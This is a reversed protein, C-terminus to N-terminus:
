PLAFQSRFTSNLRTVGLEAHHIFLARGDKSFDIAICAGVSLPYEGVLRVADDVVQERTSWLRVVADTGITALTPLTPHFTVDECQNAHALQSWLLQGTAVEWMALRRDSSVSALHKGNPSFRLDQISDTHLRLTQLLEGAEVSRIVVSNNRVYALRDGSPSFRMANALNSDVSWQPKASGLRYLSVHHRQLDSNWLCCAVLSGDSSVAFRECIHNAPAEWVVDRQASNQLGQRQLCRGSNLFFVQGAEPAAAAKLYSVPQPFFQLLQSKVPLTMGLALHSWLLECNVRPEAFVDMLEEYPMFELTTEHNPHSAVIRQDRGASVVSWDPSGFLKSFELHEVKGDHALWSKIRRARAGTSDVFGTEATTDTPILHIHGSDDGAAIWQADPSLAVSRVGDQLLQSFLLKPADQSVQFLTIQGLRQACVLYERTGDLDLDQVSGLHHSLELTWIPDTTAKAALRNPILCAIQEAATAILSDDFGREMAAVMKGSEFHFITKRHFADDALAPEIQAESLSRPVRGRTLQSTDVQYINGNDDGCWVFQRADDTALSTLGSENVRLKRFLQLSADPLLRCFSLFGSNNAVLIDGDSSVSVDNIITSDPRAFSVTKGTHPQVVVLKDDSDGYALLSGNADFAFDNIRDDGQHVTESPVSKFGSALYWEFGRLYDFEITGHRQLIQQLRQNEGALYHRTTALMDQAYVFEQLERARQEALREKSIADASARTARIAQTASLLTALSLICLIGVSFAILQRHKTVFKSTKYTWRPPCAEVADGSLYRAIDANLERPSQYRRLRDKEIAKLVIWDLEGRLLGVLQRPPPQHIGGLTKEQDLRLRVRRSPAEPETELIWQRLQELGLKRAAAREIPLVGTLLEYLLIGLSYVDSRTDVDVASLSAQEPSMYLPTGVLQFLGTYLTKDTLNQTLAKAVGFDIVKVTPVRDNEIVLVNSPKIDRHIIGKNHAHQIASCAAQFLQLRQAIDLGARQCYDTLPVGRALEMVFYPLGSETTGADLVRAINPHEMMALAQREAEFRAIVQRSDMGPKILKIAVQRRVPHSQEALFVLGMGGEGIIELLSYPGITRPTRPPLNDYRASQVSSVHTSEAQRQTEPAQSPPDPEAPLQMFSDLQEAAALMRELEEAAPADQQRLQELERRRQETDELSHLRWFQDELKNSFAPM